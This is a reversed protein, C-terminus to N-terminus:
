KGGFSEYWLKGFNDLTKFADGFIGREQIKRKCRRKYKRNLKRKYKRSMLTWNRKCCKTFFSSFSKFSCWCRKSTKKGLYVRNNYIYAIGRGRKRGRRKRYYRKRRM